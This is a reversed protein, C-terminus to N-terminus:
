EIEDAYVEVITDNNLDHVSNYEDMMAIFEDYYYNELLDTKSIQVSQM